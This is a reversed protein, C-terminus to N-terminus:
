QNGVHTEYLPFSTEAQRSLVTVINYPHLLLFKNL